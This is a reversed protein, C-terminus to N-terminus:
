EGISAGLEALILVIANFAGHMGISAYISRRRLFVSGLAFAVPLRSVFAIFAFRLAESFTGATITLVHVLAFFLGARIIAARPGATRAWATTAFGRFFTEEGIPALLAAAVLNAAFGIADSAPPVPSPPASGLLGVVVAALLLTVLVIPLALSAGWVLDAAAQRLPKAFGMDAWSMAGTGVVLLRVLGIYVLATGAVSVLLMAPTISEANGGSVIVAVVSVLVVLPLSAAFVLWPSPGAYGEVARARREIAQAGAAAVLAGGLVVLGVVLLVGAEIGGGAMAAVVILGLGVVTGLWGALYLGPAARGEITFTSAGPRPPPKPTGGSEASGDEETM